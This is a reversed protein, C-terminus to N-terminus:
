KAHKAIVVEHHHEETTGGVRYGDEGLMWVESLFGQDGVRDFVLSEGTAHSSHDQHALRQVVPVEMSASGDWSTVKISPNDSNVRSIIYDGAMFSKQGVLFPFPVNAYIEKTPAQANLPLSGAWIGLGLVVALIMFRREMRM